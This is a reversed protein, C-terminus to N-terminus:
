RFGVKGVRPEETGERTPREDHGPRWWEPAIREPGEFRAIDHMSRRWRFRRPPGDPAEAIVEIPQPPDFLHIPRLPPEGPRPISWGSPSPAPAEVAPLALAAQEPMHSDRPVLPRLRVRGLRTSLRDVRNAM